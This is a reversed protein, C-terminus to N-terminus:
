CHLHISRSTQPLQKRVRFECALQAFAAAQNDGLFLANCLTEGTM